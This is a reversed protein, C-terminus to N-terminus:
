PPPGESVQRGGPRTPSDDTQSSLPTPHNARQGERRGQSLGPRGGVGQFDGVNALARDEPDSFREALRNLLSLEERLLVVRAPPLTEILNELMARLRRIIQISDRGFQRIETVALHVFDEWDPTRYVLRPRGAADRVQGEDLCRTGVARLLHQIQDIALVATTPDNIAPSLGKSAIDVMIRFVLAPDQELTREQGVAVSQCLARSPPLTGSGYVRFLPDGAAVLDGVQPVMEIVCGASETLAVLGRIDFALVVGDHPNAIVCAPTEGPSPFDATSPPAETSGTLRRPYVNEIVERGLRAVSQLAGSPRLAKGVHDILYLFVGLSLLCSFAALEATLPPVSAAVRVLAALSLTFTFVFVTLSLKTVPDRFVIAIIRPTLQASALQVAVLLASSVFVIFTFMSAALTGLVARAADPHFASEWRLLGELWHVFRVAALAVVMGVAPWIWISNAIYHRVRYRQMWTMPTEEPVKAVSRQGPM